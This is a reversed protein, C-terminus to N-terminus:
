AEVMSAKYEKIALSLGRKLKEDKQVDERKLHLARFTDSLDCTICYEQNRMEYLFMDKVFGSGDPDNNIAEQRENDVWKILEKLKGYDSKAVFTGPMVQVIDPITLKRKELQEHLDANTFAIIFPFENYRKEIEKKLEIYKNM